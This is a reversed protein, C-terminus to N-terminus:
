PIGMRMPSTAVTAGPDLGYIRQDRGVAFRGHQEVDVPLGVAVRDLNRIFDVALDGLNALGERGSNFDLGEIVLGDDNAIGDSAHAVGNQQAQNQGGDDQHDKQAVPSCRNDRSQYNWYG